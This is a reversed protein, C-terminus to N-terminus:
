SKLNQTAQRPLFFWAFPDRSTTILPAGFNYCFFVTKHGGCFYVFICAVQYVATKWCLNLNQSKLSFTQLDLNVEWLYYKNRRRKEIFGFFIWMYCVICYSNKSQRFPLLWLCWFYCSWLVKEETSMVNTFSAGIFTKSEIHYSSLMKKRLLKGKCCDKKAKSLPWRKIYWRCSSLVISIDICYKM